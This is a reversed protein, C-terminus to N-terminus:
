DEFSHGEQEIWIEQEFLEGSEVLGASQLDCAAEWPLNEHARIVFAAQREAIGLLFGLTCMNRDAIWLQQPEVTELV